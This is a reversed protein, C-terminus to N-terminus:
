RTAKGGGCGVGGAADGEACCMVLPLLLPVLLLEADVCRGCVNACMAESDSDVIGM